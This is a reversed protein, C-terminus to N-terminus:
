LVSVISGVCTEKFGSNYGVPIPMNVKALIKPMLTQGRIWTLEIGHPPLLDGAKKMVLPLKAECLARAEDAMLAVYDVKSTGNEVSNEKTMAFQYGGYYGM